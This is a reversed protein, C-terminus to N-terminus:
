CFRVNTNWPFSYLDDSEFVQITENTVPDLTSFILKDYINVIDESSVVKLIIAGLFLAFTRLNKALTSM